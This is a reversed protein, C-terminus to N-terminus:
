GNDGAGKIKTSRPQLAPPVPLADLPLWFLPAWENDDEEVEYFGEQWDEPSGGEEAIIAEVSLWKVQRIGSDFLYAWIPTGDRPATEIPRWGMAEGGDGTASRLSAVLAARARKQDENAEHEDGTSGLLYATAASESTRILEDILAEIEALEGPARPPNAPM